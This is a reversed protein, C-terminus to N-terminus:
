LAKCIADAMERTGVATPDNRDAKLDYTVYKGEEIVKAVANSMTMDVSLSGPKRRETAEFASRGGVLWCGRDALM